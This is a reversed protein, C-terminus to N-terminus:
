LPAVLCLDCRLVPTTLYCQEAFATAAASQSVEGLATLVKAYVKMAQCELMYDTSVSGTFGRRLEAAFVRAAQEYRRLGALVRAELLRLKRSACQTIADQVDSLLEDLEGEAATYCRMYLRLFVTEARLDAYTFARGNFHRRVAGWRSEEAHPGVPLKDCSPAAYEAELCRPSSVDLYLELLPFLLEATAAHGSQMLVELCTIWGYVEDEFCAADTLGVEFSMEGRSLVAARSVDVVDLSYMLCMARIFPLSSVHLKASVARSVLARMHSHMKRPDPHLWEDPIKALTSQSACEISAHLVLYLQTLVVRSSSAAVNSSEWPFSHIPTEVTRSLLQLVGAYAFVSGFRTATILVDLCEATDGGVAQNMHRALDDTTEARSPFVPDYPVVFSPISIKTPKDHHMRQTLRKQEVLYETWVGDSLKVPPCSRSRSSLAVAMTLWAAVCADYCDISRQCCRYAFEYEHALVGCHALYLWAKHCLPDISLAKLIHESATALRGTPTDPDAVAADGPAQPYYERCVAVSNPADCEFSRLNDLEPHDIHVWSGTTDGISASLPDVQVIGLRLYSVGLLLLSKASLGMGFNDPHSSVAVGPGKGSHTACHDNGDTLGIDVPECEQSLMEISLQPEMILETFIKGTLRSLFEKEVKTLRFVEIPLTITEAGFPTSYNGPPGRLQKLLALCLSWRGQLLQVLALDLVLGKYYPEHFFTALSTLMCSEVVENLLALGDSLNAMATGALRDPVYADVVYEMIRYSRRDVRRARKKGALKKALRNAGGSAASPMARHPDVPTGIPLSRPHVKGPRICGTFVLHSIWETLTIMRDLQRFSQSTSCQTCEDMSLTMATHECPPMSSRTPKAAGMEAEETEVFPYKIGLRYHSGRLAGTKCFPRYNICKKYLYNTAQSVASRYKEVVDMVRNKAMMTEKLCNNGNYHMRLEASEMSLYEKVNVADGGKTPPLPPLWEAGDADHAHDENGGTATMYSLWSRHRFATRIRKQFKMMNRAEKSNPTPVWTMLKRLFAKRKKRLTDRYNLYELAQRFHLVAYERDVSVCFAFLALVLKHDFGLVLPQPVHDPPKSVVSFALKTGRSPPARKYRRGSHCMNNCLPTFDMQVDVSNNRVKLNELCISGTCGAGSPSKTKDHDSRVIKMEGLPSFQGDVRRSPVFRIGDLGAADCQIMGDVDLMVVYDLGVWSHGNYRSTGLFSAVPTLSVSLSRMGSRRVWVNDISSMVCLSKQNEWHNMGVYQLLSSLHDVSLPPDTAADEHGGAGQSVGNEFSIEDLLRIKSSLVRLVMCVTFCLAAYLERDLAMSIKAVMVLGELAYRRCCNSASLVCGLVFDYPIGRKRGWRQAGFCGGSGRPRAAKWVPPKSSWSEADFYPLDPSDTDETDTAFLLGRRVRRYFESRQPLPLAQLTELVSYLSADRLWLYVTRSWTELPLELMFCDFVHQVIASNDTCCPMDDLSIGRKALVCNFLRRRFETRADATAGVLSRQKKNLDSRIFYLVVGLQMLVETAEDWSGLHILADILSLYLATYVDYALLLLDVTAINAFEERCIRVAKTFVVTRFASSYSIPHQAAGTSRVVGVFHSSYDYAREPVRHGADVVVTRARRAYSAGTLVDVAHINREAQRQLRAFSRRAYLDHFVRDCHQQFLRLETICAAAPRPVAWVSEGRAAVVM